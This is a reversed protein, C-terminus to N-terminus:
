AFTPTHEVLYEKTTGVKVAWEGFRAGLVKLQMLDLVRPMVWSVTVTEDVQDMTGQILGLSLARMLLLEVHSKIVKTRNAIDEFTLTREASPREFIMNVLALLTIKEKVVHARSVLAPQAQIAVQSAETVQVFTDVDGKVFCHMLDILWANPTDTLYSLIPTTTIEGFNFVGDGTLAALSIDTALTYREQETM